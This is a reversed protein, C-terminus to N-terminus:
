PVFRKRLAILARWDALPEMEHRLTCAADFAYSGGFSISLGSKRETVKFRDADGTDQSPTVALIDTKREVFGTVPKRRGCFIISVRVKKM